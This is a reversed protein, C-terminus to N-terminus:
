FRFRNRLSRYETILMGVPCILVNQGQKKRFRRGLSSLYKFFHVFLLVGIKCPLELNTENKNCSCAFQQNLTEAVVPTSFEFQFIETIL